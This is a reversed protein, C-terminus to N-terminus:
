KSSKKNKSDDKVSLTYEGPALEFEDIKEPQPKSFLWKLIKFVVAVYFGIRWFTSGKKFGKKYISRLTFASLLKKKM